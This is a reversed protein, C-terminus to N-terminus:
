RYVRWLARPIYRKDNLGVSPCFMPWKTKIMEDLLPGYNNFTLLIVKGAFDSNSIATAYKKFQEILTDGVRKGDSHKEARFMNPEIILGEYSDNLLLSVLGEPGDFTHNQDNRYLYDVPVYLHLDLKENIRFARHHVNKILSNNIDDIFLIKMKDM